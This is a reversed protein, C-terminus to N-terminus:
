GLTFYSPKFPSPWSISNLIQVCILLELLFPVERPKWIKFHEESSIDDNGNGIRNLNFGSPSIVNILTQQLSIPAVLININSCLTACGLTLTVHRFTVLRRQVCCISCWAYLNKRLVYVDCKMYCWWVNQTVLHLTELVYVNFFTFM